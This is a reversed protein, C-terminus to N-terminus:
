RRKLIMKQYSIIILEMKKKEEPVEVQVHYQFGLIESVVTDKGAGSPGSIVTLIGKNKTKIM